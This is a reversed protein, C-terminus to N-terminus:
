PTGIRELARLAAQREDGNSLQVVRTWHQRAQDPTGNREHWEGLLRQLEANAPIRAAARTWYDFAEKDRGLRTSVKGRNKLLYPEVEAFKQNSTRALADDIYDRAEDLRGRAILLAGLNNYTHLLTADADIALSYYLVAKTTASIDSATM